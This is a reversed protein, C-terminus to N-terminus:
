GFMYIMIINDTDAFSFSFFFKRGSGYMISSLVILMMESWTFYM